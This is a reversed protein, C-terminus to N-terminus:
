LPVEATKFGLIHVQQSSHYLLCVLTGVSSHHPCSATIKVGNAIGPKRQHEPIFNM